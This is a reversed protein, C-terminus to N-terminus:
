PFKDTYQIDELALEDLTAEPLHDPVDDYISTEVSEEIWRKQEDPEIDWPLNEFESNTIVIHPIFTASFKNDTKAVGSVVLTAEWDVHVAIHYVGFRYTARGSCYYELIETSTGYIEMYELSYGVFGLQCLWLNEDDEEM